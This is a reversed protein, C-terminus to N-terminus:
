MKQCVFVFYRAEHSPSLPAPLPSGRKRSYGYAGFARAIRVIAPKYLFRHLMRQGYRALVRYRPALLEDFETLTYEVRHHANDPPDDRGKMPSTVVRNPTSILLIGGPVLVRTLEALVIEADDVHEITEFSCAVDICAEALPLRTVDGRVYRLNPHRYQQEAYRVASEDIDVGLVSAAYPALALSGYGTGCAADLTRRGVAFPISFTYRAQHDEWIRQPTGGEVVREGSFAVEISSNAAGQSETALSGEAM